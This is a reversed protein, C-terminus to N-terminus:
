KLTQDVGLTQVYFEAESILNFSHRDLSNDAIFNQVREYSTNGFTGKRWITSTWPLGKFSDIGIFKRAPHQSQSTKSLLFLSLDQRVGFKVVDGPVGQSEIELAITQINLYRGVQHEVESSTPYKDILRSDVQSINNLIYLPAKFLENVSNLKTKKYLNQIAKFSHLITKIGQRTIRKVTIRLVLFRKTRTMLFLFM